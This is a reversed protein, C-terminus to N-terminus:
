NLDGFISNNLSKKTYIERGNALEWVQSIIFHNPTVKSENIRAYLNQMPDKSFYVFMELMAISVCLKSSYQYFMRLATNTAEDYDYEGCISGSNVSAVVSNSQITNDYKDPTYKKKTLLEYELAFFNCQTNNFQLVKSQIGSLCFYSHFTTINYNKKIYDPSIANLVVKQYSKDYKKYTGYPEYFLITKQEHEVIVGTQHRVHTGYDLTIPYFDTTPTSRFYSSSKKDVNIFEDTSWGESLNFNIKFLMSPKLLIKTSDAIKQFFLQSSVGGTYLCYALKAAKINIRGAISMM